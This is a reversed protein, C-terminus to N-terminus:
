PVSVLGECNRCRILAELVEVNADKEQSVRLGAPGGMFTDKCWQLVKGFAPYAAIQEDLWSIAKDRGQTREMAWATVLANSPIFNRVTNDVRPSFQLIRGLLHGSKRGGSIYEMWDELRSDIEDDYPKGVGLNEPWSRAAKIYAAAKKHDSRGLAEVARMLKAERYLARGETAGEFPIIDLKSLLVDADRYRKNLMLAKTYLMGMIYQDQHAKYFPEVIGLAEAPRGHDMYYETLLKHYRWQAMDLSLARQLDQLRQTSDQKLIAARVAYFPAFDPVTGCAMLLDKCEDVRNRDNYILALQYKLRWDDQGKLLHELVAGTESRFPFSFAPDIRACDVQQGQLFALWCVSESSGPDMGFLMKTEDAYGANYYWIALEAYTEHPLESRILSTFQKRDAETRGQLYREFRAFHNLPDYGLITRLTASAKATDGLRRYAVAELMLADMNWRNFGIAKEAYEISQDYQKEKGAL